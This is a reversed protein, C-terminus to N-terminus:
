TPPRMSSNRIRTVSMKRAKGIRTSSSIRRLTNAATGAILETIPSFDETRNM